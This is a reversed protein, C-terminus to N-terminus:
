PAVLFSDLRRAMETTTIILVRDGPEIRDKGRPVMLEDGRSRAAVLVGPPLKLEALSGKTLRSGAMAEAEIAEITDELLAAASHIRGLRIHQLALGVALLRPSIVADIAVAGILDALAPNDVLAFTRRAGLKKALLSSVLNTEHEATLAVFAEVGGVREQELVERDTVAGNIVRPGDLVGEARRAKAPDEEIMVVQTGRRALRQAVQVAIRGAGAIMVRRSRTTPTGLLTLVNDVEDHATALYLLDGERIEEDARPIMRADGRQIAVVLTTVPFLLSVNAVPLGALDSSADIRFGSVVLRGDLFTVVDAAGPVDLLALIREVAAAEPNLAVAEGPHDRRLVDFTAQHDPNRLRLVVRSIGFLARALMGVVLNAEDSDTSAVLLDAGKGAAERLVAATAGNGEVVRVDLQSTLARVKSHSREVLTVDHRDRSLKAALTSGVQGGGVIVVNM